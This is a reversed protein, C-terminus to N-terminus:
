IHAKLAIDELLLFNHLKLYLSAAGRHLTLVLLQQLLM